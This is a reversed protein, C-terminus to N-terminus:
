ASEFDAQAKTNAALQADFEQQSITKQNLLNQSRAFDSQAKEATSKASSADAKAKLVSANATTVKARMLEYAAVVTRFNADQSAAAAQKQAVTIAYDSPDLELLLDNSRVLQNDLVHVAAVQGDIRPAISVIHGVIFADDTSEHTLANLFYGLGFFLLVALIFGAPWLVLPSNLRALSRGNDKKEPAPPPPNLQATQNQLPTQAAPAAPSESM